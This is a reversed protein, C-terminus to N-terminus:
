IFPNSWLLTVDLYRLGMQRHTNNFLLAPLQSPKLDRCCTGHHGGLQAIPDIPRGSMLQGETITKEASTVYLRSRLYTSFRFCWGQAVVSDPLGVLRTPTPLGTWGGAVGATM